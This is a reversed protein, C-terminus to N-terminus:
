SVNSVCFSISVDEDNTIKNRLTPEDFVTYVKNNVTATANTRATPCKVTIGNSDLYIQGYNNSVQLYVDSLALPYLDSPDRLRDLMDQIRFTNSPINSPSLFKNAQYTGNFQDGSVLQWNSFQDDNNLIPDGNGDTRLFAATGNSISIVSADSVQVSITVAAGGSSIDVYSPSVTLATAVPRHFDQGYMKFNLVSIASLVVLVVLIILDKKNM